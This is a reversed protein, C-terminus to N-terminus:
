PMAPDNWDISRDPGLSTLPTMISIRCGVAIVGAEEKRCDQWLWLAAVVVVEDVHVAVLV